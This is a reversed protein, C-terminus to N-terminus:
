DLKTCPISFLAINELYKKNTQMTSPIPEFFFSLWIGLGERFRQSKVITAFSKSTDM